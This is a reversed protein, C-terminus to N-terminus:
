KHINGRGSFSEPASGGKMTDEQILPIKLAIVIGKGEGSFSFMETLCQLKRAQYLSDRSVSFAFISITQAIICLIQVSAAEPQYLCVVPM